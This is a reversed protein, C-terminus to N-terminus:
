GRNRGSAYWVMRVRHKTSFNSTSQQVFANEITPEESAESRLLKFLRFLFYLKSATIYFLSLADGM